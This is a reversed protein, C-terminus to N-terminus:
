GLRRSALFYLPKENFFCIEHSWGFRMVLLDLKGLWTRGVVCNDASGKSKWDKSRMQISKRCRSELM